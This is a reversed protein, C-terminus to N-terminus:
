CALPRLVWLQALLGCHSVDLLELTLCKNRRGQIVIQLVQALLGKRYLHAFPRGLRSRSGTSPLALRNMSVFARPGTLGSHGLRRPPHPIPPLAGWGGVGEILDKAGRLALSVM